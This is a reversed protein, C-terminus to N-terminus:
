FEMGGDDLEKSVVSQVPIVPQSTNIGRKALVKEVADEILKEDLLDQASNKMMDQRILQKIFTANGTSKSVVYEYLDEEHEAFSVPIRKISRSM